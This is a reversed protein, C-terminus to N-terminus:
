LLDEYKRAGHLVRLIRLQDSHSDHEYFILYNRKVPKCRIGPKINDVSFGLKTNDAILAFVADIQKLLKDAATPNGSAIYSWIGALDAKALPTVVLTAM